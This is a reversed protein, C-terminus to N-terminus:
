KDAEEYGKLTVQWVHGTGVRDEVLGLRTLEELASRWRAATRPKDDDIFDVGNTKIVGRGVIDPKMIIGSRDEGAEKLLRKADGSLALSHGPMDGGGGLGRGSQVKGQFHENVKQALQRSFLGEFQNLSQFEEVLGDQRCEQKFQRLAAYQKADVSDPPVPASSFYVMAPRGRGVHARIEEVTGSASEGTPSGLRTWFIAVLLDCKMVMQRNLIGQARGGMEPHSDSEWGMPMLLLRERAAHASNWDHVLRRVAEREETVDGPSAILVRHVNAEFM